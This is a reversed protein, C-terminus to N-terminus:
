FLFNKRRKIMGNKVIYSKGKHLKYVGDPAPRGDIFVPDEKQPHGHFEQHVEITKSGSGTYQKAFYVYDIRSNKVRLTADQKILSYDGDPVQEGDIFVQRNSRYSYAGWYKSLELQGGDKLDFLELGHTARRINQLYGIGDLDPITRENAFLIFQENYGDKSLVMINEDTYHAKLLLKDTVRDLLIANANPLYEWEGKTVAGNNSIILEGNGQFILKNLNASDGIQIWPQEVLM